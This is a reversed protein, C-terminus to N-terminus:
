PGVAQLHLKFTPDPATPTGDCSYGGGTRCEFSTSTNALTV